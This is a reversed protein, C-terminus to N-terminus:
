AESRLVPDTCSERSLLWAVTAWNALALAGDTAISALAAGRWSWRPILFVNLCINLLAAGLQSGTRYWQSSSGTITSGAAYHFCRILPLICLWRLTIPSERFSPGLVIPLIGAALFMVVAVALGYFATKKLLRLSLDYAHRVSKAGEQFFRPFAATYIGYLPVSAVDVIRYAAAYFGAVNAQGLSTLMTKDIDNYVSIASNSISFSFGDSFDRRPIRGLAPLGLRTTVIALSIICVTLSSIWYIKTWTYATPVIHFHRSVLLLLCAAAARGINTAANLKATYELMNFGQFARSAIQTIKSFLADSTAVFPILKLVEHPLVFRGLTYAALLVCFFGISAVSLSAGWTRSFTARNRSVERVMVMEMGFSSFNTMIQILAAVGVFLGYEESGLTRGILVFYAAQFLVSIGQGSIMWLSSTRLTPEPSPLLRGKLTEQM